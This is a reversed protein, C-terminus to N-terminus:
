SEEEQLLTSESNGHYQLCPNPILILILASNRPCALRPIQPLGYELESILRSLITNQSQGYDLTPTASCRLRVAVVPNQESAGFSWTRDVDRYHWKNVNGSETVALTVSLGLGINTPGKSMLPEEPAFYTACCTRPEQLINRQVLDEVRGGSQKLGMIIRGSYVREEWSTSLDGQKVSRRDRPDDMLRAVDQQQYPSPSSTDNASRQRKENENRSSRICM